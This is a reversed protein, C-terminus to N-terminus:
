HWHQQQSNSNDYSRRFLETKLACKFTQLSPLSTIAGIATISINTLPHSILFVPWFQSQISGAGFLSSTDTRFRSILFVVPYNICSAEFHFDSHVATKVLCLELIHFKFFRLLIWVRHRSIFTATSQQRLWVCTLEVAAWVTYTCVCCRKGCWLIPLM